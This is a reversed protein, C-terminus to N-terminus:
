SNSLYRDAIITMDFQMLRLCVSVLIDSSRFFSAWRNNAVVVITLLLNRRDCQQYCNVVGAAHRRYLARNVDAPRVGLRVVNRIAFLKPLGWGIWALNPACACTLPRRREPFKYRSLHLATPAFHPRQWAWRMSRLRSKTVLVLRSKPLKGIESKWWIKGCCTLGHGRSVYRFTNKSFKWNLPWKGWFSLISLFWVPVKRLGTKLGRSASYLSVSWTTIWPGLLKAPRDVKTHRISKSNHPKLTGWNECKQRNKGGEQSLFIQWISETIRRLLPLNLNFNTDKALQTKRPSRTLSSPVGM